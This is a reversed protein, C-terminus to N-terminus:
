ATTPVDARALVSGDANRIEVASVDARDVAANMRCDITVSSGFFTGSPYMSGSQELVVVEYMGREPVGDMELVTETGWTHPVLGGEIEIGSPVGAFDIQEFAGLTGPPGTVPGESVADIGLTAGVGVVIGIMAAMAVAATTPVRPMRPTREADVAAIARRRMSTTPQAEDWPLVSRAGTIRDVTRRFDEIDEAVTPDNQALTRLEVYESESLDDAAAAAILEARRDNMASM